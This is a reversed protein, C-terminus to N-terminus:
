PSPDAITSHPRSTRPCKVHGKPNEWTAQTPMSTITRTWQTVNPKTSSLPPIHHYFAVVYAPPAHTPTDLSERSSLRPPAVGTYFCRTAYCVFRIDRSM